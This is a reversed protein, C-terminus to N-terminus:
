YTPEPYLYFYKHMGLEQLLKPPEPIQAVERKIVGLSQEFFEEKPTGLHKLVTELIIEPSSVAIGETVPFNNRALQALNFINAGFIPQDIELIHKIPLIIM